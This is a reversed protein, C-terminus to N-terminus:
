KWVELEPVLERAATQSLRAAAVNYEYTLELLTFRAKVFAALGDILERATVTGLEFGNLAFASWARTAKFAERTAAIKDHASTLEDHAAFVDHRVRELLARRTERLAELEASARM